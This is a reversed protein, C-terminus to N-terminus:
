PIYRITNSSFPWVQGATTHADGIAINASVLSNEASSPRSDPLTSIGPALCAAFGFSIDLSTLRCGEQFRNDHFGKSLGPGLPTLLTARPSCSARPRIARLWQDTGAM